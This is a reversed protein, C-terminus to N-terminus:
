SILALLWKAGFGAAVAAFAILMHRQLRLRIEKLEPRARSSQLAYGLNLFRWQFGTTGNTDTQAMQFCCRLIGFM